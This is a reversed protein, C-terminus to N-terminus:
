ATLLLAIALNWLNSTSRPTVKTFITHKLLLRVCVYVRLCVRVSSCKCLRVVCGLALALWKTCKEKRRKERREERRKERKEEREPFPDSPARDASRQSQPQHSWLRQGSESGDPGQGSKEEDPKNDTCTRTRTKHKQRLKM